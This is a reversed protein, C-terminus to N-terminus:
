DVLRCKPQLAAIEEPTAPRIDPFPNLAGLRDFIMAAEELADCDIELYRGKCHKAM